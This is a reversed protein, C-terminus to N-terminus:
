KQAHPDLVEGSYLGYLEGEPQQGTLVFQMGEVEGAIGHGVFKTMAPGYLNGKAEWQVVWQGGGPSPTFVPLAGGFDWTGVEYVGTGSLVGNMQADMNADGEYTFRGTLLPNDLLMVQGAKASMRINGSPTVSWESPEFFFIYGIGECTQKVGAIAPGAWVLVAALGALLSWRTVRSKLLGTMFTKM